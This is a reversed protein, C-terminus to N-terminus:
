ASTGTRRKDIVYISGPISKAYDKLEAAIEGVEATNTLKREKNTVVAISITMLPFNVVIGQRTKGIIYGRSRDENDYFGPIAKDFAEIVAKCIDAFRDPSSIVTFDDGGIHGIFDEETGKNSIVEEIIRATAKIVESGMAYGYRDNFAKFNDLDLLCFALPIGSDLRKQLINEIAIGGPLRTLPSADIYMEELRKLRRAMEDFANSLEGLEDQNQTNHKYDFRGEAIQKTAAKLQNISSSINRTIILASGVSLSLGLICLAATIRFANSGINATITAKIKQDHMAASSIKKIFAILEEQKKKIRSNHVEAIHTGKGIYEIGEMVIYNYQDHLSTLEKIPFKDQGPLLLIQEAIQNFEESRQWFLVLMDSSKLIAYRGMYLEQALLNDIMKDTADIVPVDTKLISENINNLRRLNSLAFISILIILVALSLYGIMLKKAINLRFFRDSLNNIIPGLYKSQDFIM